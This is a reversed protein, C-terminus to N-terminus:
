AAAISRSRKLYQIAQWLLDEEDQFRALGNNCHDCLLGRVKGSSHCHDVNLSRHDTPLKRCIACAGSQEALLADYDTRSIGYRRQLQWGRAYRKFEPTPQQARRQAKVKERNAIYWQHRQATACAPCYRRNDALIRRFESGGCRRCRYVKEAVLADLERGAVLETVSM